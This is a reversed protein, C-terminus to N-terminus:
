EGLALGPTQTSNLIVTAVYSDSDGQKMQIQYKESLQELAAIVEAENSAMAVKEVGETKLDDFLRMINIPVNPATDANATFVRAVSPNKQSIMATFSTNGYRLAHAGPYTMMKAYMAKVMELPVQEKSNQTDIDLIEGLQLMQQKSDVLQM